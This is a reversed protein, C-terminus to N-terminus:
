QALIAREEFENEAGCVGSTLSHTGNDELDLGRVTPGCLLFHAVAFATAANLLTSIRSFRTAAPAHASSSSWLVERRCCRLLRVMRRHPQRDRSRWFRGDAM